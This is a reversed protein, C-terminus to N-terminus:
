ICANGRKSNTKKSLRYKEDASNISMEVCIIAKNFSNYTERDIIKNHAIYNRIDCFRNFNKEFEKSFYKEIINGEKIISLLDRTNTSMLRTDVGKFGKVEEEYKKIRNEKNKIYKYDDGWRSGFAEYMIECILRRLRNEVRFIKEYLDYSLLAADYDYLWIIKDYDPLISDKIGLKLKEINNNWVSLENEEVEISIELMNTIENSNHFRFAVIWNNKYENNVTAGVVVFLNNDEEFDEISIDDVLKGDGLKTFIHKIYKYKDDIIRKKNIAIFRIYSEM